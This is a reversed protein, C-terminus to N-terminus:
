FLQVDIDLKLLDCVVLLLYELTMNKIITVNPCKSLIKM